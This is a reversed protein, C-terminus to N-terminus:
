DPPTLAMRLQEATALFDARNETDFPQMCLGVASATITLGGKRDREILGQRIMQGVKRRVTERPIGTSASISFANCPRLPLRRFSEEDHFPPILQDPDDPPRGGTNYL